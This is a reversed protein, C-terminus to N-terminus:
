RYASLLGELKARVPFDQPPLLWAEQALEEWSLKRRRVLRHGPAAVISSQEEYLPRVEVLGLDVRFEAHSLMVDSQGELLQQYLDPQSASWVQVRVDPALNRFRAIARAVLEQSFVKLMGVRLVGRVGEQLSMIDQE